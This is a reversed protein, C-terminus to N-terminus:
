PTGEATAGATSAGPRRFPRALIGKISHLMDDWGGGRASAGERGIRALGWLALFFFIVNPAWMAVWPSFATEDALNEGGILGAYYVAFMGISAAIVLGVGGRPFRVAIPAGIMVFVIVAWSIAHKKHYEVMYMSARREVSRARGNLSSLDVYTRRVLDDHISDGGARLGPRDLRLSRRPTDVTYGDEPGRLIRDLAGTTVTLAEYRLSDVDARARDAEARLMALSMERDSRNGSSDTRTLENGVDRMQIRYQNFVTRVFREPNGGDIQNIWGDHLTLFLDTQAQNFAMSGSDAYITRVRGPQSLDYIVVDHLANTAGHIEAAQLYYQARSGGGRSIPNITQEKLQLTPTKRQIDVLLLKLAHNTEPLLYDNFWVMGAGFLAAAVLLPALLRNLNVGSAKLATVENDAALSSFAHLTSVLVAMPLTLALIHPLSLIFVEAMVSWSLGKGALTELRRAVTNIMLIGTLVSLSFVFPALHARLIYRTLIRM